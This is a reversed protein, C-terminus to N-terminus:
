SKKRFFNVTSEVSDILEEVSEFRNNVTKVCDTVKSYMSDVELIFRFFTIISNNSGILILRQRHKGDDVYELIIFLSIHWILIEHIRSFFSSLTESM